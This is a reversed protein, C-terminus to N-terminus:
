HFILGCALLPLTLHLATKLPSPQNGLLLSVNILSSQLVADKLWYWGIQLKIDELIWKSFFM